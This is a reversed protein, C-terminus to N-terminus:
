QLAIREIRLVEEPAMHFDFVALDARMHNNNTTGTLPIMGVELAFCFVIQAASQGHCETIKHVEPHALV